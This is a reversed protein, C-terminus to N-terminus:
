VNQGVAYAKIVDYVPIQTASAASISPFSDNMASIDCSDVTPLWGLTIDIIPSQEFASHLSPMTTSYM